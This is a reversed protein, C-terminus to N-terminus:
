KVISLEYNLELHKKKDSDIFSNKVSYKGRYMMGKPAETYDWRPFEFVHPTSSPPYSGLVSEEVDSIMMRTVSNVFKIGTVIEHQVRFTIRFKYRIGEKLTIGEKALRNIGAEDSLNHVIDPTNFEPAFIVRFEEIVVRRPDNVNGLDGHAASGLLSEKYKRLSEDEADKALLEAVNATGKPTIDVSTTNEENNNEGGEQEQEKPAPKPPKPPPTSM